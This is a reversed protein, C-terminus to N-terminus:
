SANIHPNLQSISTLNTFVITTNDSLTLTLAGNVISNSAAGYGSFNFTDHGANINALTDTIFDVAGSTQGAVFFYQNSGGGANLTESGFGVNISDNGTGTSISASGGLSATVDGTAASANLTVNGSTASYTLPSNGAFTVDSNFSGFITSAGTGLVSNSGGSANFVLDTGSTVTSGGSGGFVTAGFQGGVFTLPGTGGLVVDGSSTGVVSVSLAGLGGGITASTGAANVTNSGFAASVVDGVGNLNIVNGPGSFSSALVTSAGSVGTAIIGSGSALIQNNGTGFSLDYTGTANVTANGGTAAVTSNGSLFYTGGVTNTVIAANSATLTDAAADNEIVYNYTGPVTMAFGGPGALVLERTSGGMRAMAEASDSFDLLITPLPVGSAIQNLWFAQEAGDPTRHLANLYLNTVLTAANPNDTQFEPSAVIDSAIQQLSVGSKLQSTWDAEGAADPARGFAAQYMRYVEANNNAGPTVDFGTEAEASQAFAQAVTGRDAGAALQSVWYQLGGADAPRSFSNEYLQNVFAADSLSGYRQAYEPSALIDDAVTTLTLGSNNVQNTWYQLGAADAARGLVGEYLRSLDGVTGLDVSSQGGPLSVTQVALNGAGQITSLLTGIQAALNSVDRTTM